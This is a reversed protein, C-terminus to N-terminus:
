ELNWMGRCAETGRAASQWERGDHADQRKQTAVQGRVFSNAILHSQSRSLQAASRGGGKQSQAVVVEQM